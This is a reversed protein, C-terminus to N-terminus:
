VAITEARVVRTAVGASFVSYNGDLRIRRVVKRAELWSVGKEFATKGPTKVMEQDGVPRREITIATYGLGPRSAHSRPFWRM